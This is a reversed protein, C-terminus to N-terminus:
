SAPKEILIDGLDLTEGPKVSFDRRVQVGKDEDNVTSWDNIRYTAGPILDPLTIRGETDTFLGNWYHKRDLNVVAAADAALQQKALANRTRSSPGVSGLIEFQPSLKVVPKGDPTIFRAMAKGCRELHITLDDASQKGSLEVTAGWQHDADLFSVRTTKEPDLGHLAFAGDRAHITLDGRWNVHFYNFHLLAVIEARDVTEGSPGVLRGKVTRGARLGANIGDPSDGAKLEFPVISHAYYREGGPKGEFLMRGGISELVYDPTPGYVLLHGKGPPVVIQYTGDDRTTVVAQWGDLVGGKPRRALCQVTAGAVPSGSGSETVKGRILVGRPVKIDQTTKVSGKLCQIDQRFPLYPQGEAPFVQVTYLTSPLVNATYRGHDDATVRTSNPLNMISITGALPEGSDAALIRGEIVNAPQLTQVVDKPVGLDDTQIRINQSAFRSDNVSLMVLVNRGIGALSFRGENDTTVPRLWNRVGQPLRAVGLNVGDFTGIGSPRGVSAIHLEVDRAPLANVDFLRGRIPQESQLRIEVTPEAADANLEAWGLGFGPAAALAYVEFFRTFSTRSAELNFRGDANSVGRGLLRHREADIESPLFPERPRGVIEVPVGAMEKGSPDLVRGVVFMRGEAPARKTPASEARTQPLVAASKAQQSGELAPAFFWAGTVGTAIALMSVAVLGLRRALMDRLIVKVLVAVLPAASHGAAFQTAAHATTECLQSSVSASARSATFAAALASTSLIVGRRILGRRLRERARAMRSRVTGHSCGLRRATEHVTLGELYCLIVPLRFARPLREIEGHLLEARERALCAGEASPAVLISRANLMSGAKELNRRRCRRIRACRATRLAVGYLWNGLLDPDSISRAKRALILFVAQFADEAHHRDGLLENCVGLVMSGHRMVLAAFAAEGAADRRAIFRDLLQGDSMGAVSSGEFLMNIQRVVSGSIPSAISM